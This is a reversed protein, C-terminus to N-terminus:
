LWGQFRADNLLDDVDEVILTCSETLFDAESALYQKDVGANGSLIAASVGRSRLSSVQDVMLALLPSIVIVCYRHTDQAETSGRRFDLMFPLLQYCLSKGYGTPFWVFTDSGNYVAELVEVQKPKLVLDKNGICALAHKVAGSFSSQSSAMVFCASALQAQM